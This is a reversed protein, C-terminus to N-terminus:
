SGERDPYRFSVSSGRRDPCATETRRCLLSNEAKKESKAAEMLKQLEIVIAKHEHLMHGLDKGLRETM